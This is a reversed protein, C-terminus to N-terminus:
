ENAIAWTKLVCPFCVIYLGHQVRYLLDGSYQLELDQMVAMTSTRSCHYGCKMQLDKNVPRFEVQVLKKAQVSLKDHIM